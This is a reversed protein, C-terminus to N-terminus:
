ATGVKRSVPLSFVSAVIREDCVHRARDPSVVSIAVNGIAVGELVNTYSQRAIGKRSM